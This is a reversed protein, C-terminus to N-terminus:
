RPTILHPNGNATVSIRDSSTIKAGIVTGDSLTCSLEIPYRILTNHRDTVVGNVKIYNHFMGAYVCITNDKYGYEKCSFFLSSTFLGLFVAVTAIIISLLFYKGFESAYVGVCELVAHSKVEGKIYFYSRLTHGESKFFGMEEALLNGEGDYFAVTIHGSKVTSTFEVKVIYETEDLSKDYKYIEGSDKVVKGEMPPLTLMIIVLVIGLVAPLIRLFCHFFLKVKEHSM